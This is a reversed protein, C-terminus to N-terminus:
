VVRDALEALIERCAREKARASEESQIGSHLVSVRTGSAADDLPAALTILVRTDIADPRGFGRLDWSLAIREPRVIELVRGVIAGGGRREFALEFRGGITFDLAVEDAGTLRFFAKSGLFDFTEKAAANVVQPAAISLLKETV